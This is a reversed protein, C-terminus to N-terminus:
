SAFINRIKRVVRGMLRLPRTMRWSKSNMVEDIRAECAALSLSLQEFSEEPSRDLVSWANHRQEPFIFERKQEFAIERTGALVRQGLVNLEVPEKRIVCISNIFEISHIQALLAEPLDISFQARVGALFMERSKEVGWSEHNVVDVLRKFFSMSSFPAYLGGDMEQWYSCHMDEVVFLGGHRLHPFYRAFSRIIDGSTHSGDDVILDFPDAMSLIDAYVEDANADGIVLSIRPDDFVLNACDPNIDCGIFKEAHAFYKGWIELSGGNQVGIELMRVQKDRYPLLLRDYERLYIEWKDSANGQHSEYLERLSRM